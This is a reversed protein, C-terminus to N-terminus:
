GANKPKEIRWDVKIPPTTISGHWTRGSNGVEKSQKKGELTPDLASEITARLFVHGKEEDTLVWVGSDTSIMAAANKPVGWNRCHMGINISSDMPLVITGPDAHPGSRSLISSSGDRVVNGDKDVLEFKVNKRWCPIHLPNGVDGINRLELFPVISRTGNVATREVLNVRAVVGNSSESWNDGTDDIANQRSFTAAVTTLFALLLLNTANMSDGILRTILPTRTFTFLNASSKNSPNESYNSRSLKNIM